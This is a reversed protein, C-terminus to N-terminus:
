RRRATEAAEQLLISGRADKSDDPRLRRSFDDALM